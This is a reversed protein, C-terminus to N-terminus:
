KRYGFLLITIPNLTILLVLIPKIIMVTVKLLTVIITYVAKLIAFIFKM